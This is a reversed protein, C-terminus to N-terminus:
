IVEEKPKLLIKGWYREKHSAFDFIKKLNYCKMESNIEIYTNNINSCNIKKTIESDNSKLKITLINNSIDVEVNGDNPSINAYNGIITITYDPSPESFTPLLGLSYFVGLIGLIIILLSAKLITNKYKNDM